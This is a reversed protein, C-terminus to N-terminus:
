KLWPDNDGFITSVAVQGLINGDVVVPVSQGRAYHAASAYGPSEAPGSPDTYVEIRREPINAIWYVPVRETAYMKLVVNRDAALSSEAVEIVLPVADSPVEAPYDTDRGRVVKLDPEPLTDDRHRLRVPAEQEVYAVAAVVPSVTDYLRRTVVVHPRHKVMKEVLQGEWLIVRDERKFFGSRALELYRDVTMRWPGAVGPVSAWPNTPTAETLEDSTATAITM